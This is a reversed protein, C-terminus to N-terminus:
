NRSNPKTKAIEAAREINFDSKLGRVNELHLTTKPDARIAEAVATKHDDILKQKEMAILDERVEDFPKARPAIKEGMKVVHFGFQTEVPAMIDGAKLKSIADPLPAVFKDLPMGNIEVSAKNDSYQEALKAFDEGKKAREYVEQARQRAVERPYSKISVLIHQGTILEPSTFEKLHAKYLERARPELDPVRVKKAVDAMYIEALVDEEALRVRAAALPDKDLGAARARAAMVRRMWLGDVTPNIKEYEARFEDRRDAPVRQMYADFDLTTLSVEGNDVLTKDGPRAGEAAMAAGVAFAIPAVLGQKWNKM